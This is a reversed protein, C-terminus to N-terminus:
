FKCSKHKLPSWWPLSFVAWPILSFTHLDYMQYPVKGLFYLLFSLPGLKKFSCLMQISTEEFIICLHGMLWSLHTALQHSICRLAVAPHSRVGAQTTVTCLCVLTSGERMTPPLMCHLVSQHNRSPNLVSGGGSRPRTGSLSFPVPACPGTCVRGSARSAIDWLQFYGM